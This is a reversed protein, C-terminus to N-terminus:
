SYARFLQTVWSGDEFLYRLYLNKGPKFRQWLGEMQIEAALAAIDDKSLIERAQAFLYNGSPLEEPKGECAADKQVDKRQADAKGGFVLNGPLKNQDPEFALCDKEDLEFCFVMEGDFGNDADAKFEFPRPNEQPVVYIPSALNLHFINIDM